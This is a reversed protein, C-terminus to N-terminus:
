VILSEMKQFLDVLRILDEKSYYEITIKGRNKKSSTISVKTKLVARLQDEVSQIELPIPLKIKHKRRRILKETDRVNLKKRLVEELSQNKEEDSELSLFARAHGMTIKGGILAQKIEDPLNLLRVTNAIHSRDKGVKEAVIIQTYGYDEILRQYAQGEEICNLDERQINEILALELAGNQQVKQIIVPIKKLGAMKAARWRREGAVIEYGDPVKRVLVPQLVGYRKISCSLDNLDNINFSKRPQFPNPIVKEIDIEGGKEEPLVTKDPDLPLGPILSSLGRGLGKQNNM